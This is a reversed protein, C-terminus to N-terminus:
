SAGGYSFSLLICSGAKSPSHPGDHGLIPHGQEAKISLDCAHQPSTQSLTERIRPHVFQYPHVNSTERIQTVFSGNCTFTHMLRKRVLQRRLCSDRANALASYSGELGDTSATRSEDRYKTMRISSPLRFAYIPIPNASRESLKSKLSDMSPTCLNRMEQVVAKLHPMALSCLTPPQRCNPLSDNIYYKWSISLECSDEM